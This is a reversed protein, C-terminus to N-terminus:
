KKGFDVLTESYGARKNELRAMMFILDSLRNLYVIGFPNIEESESLKVIKREARRCVTRALHMYPSGFIGSPLIFEKLDGVEIHFEDIFKEIREVMGENIRPIEGKFNQPTALDGGLIFLDNQITQLVDKLLEDNTNSIIIGIVSNLEDVDGYADVRTSSKSVKEGSVLLTQGKDGTKTYVKTIRKKAMESIRVSAIYDIM